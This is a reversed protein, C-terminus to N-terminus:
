RTLVKAQADKTIEFHLFELLSFALLAINVGDLLTKQWWYSDLTRTESVILAFKVYGETIRVVALPV